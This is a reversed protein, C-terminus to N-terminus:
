KARPFQRLVRVRSRFRPRAGQQGSHRRRYIGHDPLREKQADRGAYYTLGCASSWLRECRPLQAAPGDFYKCAFFQHDPQTHIGAHLPNRAEGISGAFSNARPRIWLLSRPGRAVYRYHDSFRGPPIDQGAYARRSRRERTGLPLLRPHFLDAYRRAYWLGRKRCRATVRQLSSRHAINIQYDRKPLLIRRLMDTPAYRLRALAGPEPGPPRHNLDM